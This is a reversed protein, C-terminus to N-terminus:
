HVRVKCGPPTKSPVTLFITLFDGQPLSYAWVKVLVSDHPKGTYDTSYSSLVPTHSAYLVCQACTEEKSRRATKCRVSRYLVTHKHKLQTCNTCKVSHRGPWGFRQMIVVTSNRCSTTMGTACLLKDKDKRLVKLSVKLPIALFQQHEQLLNYSHHCCAVARLFIWTFGTIATLEAFSVLFTDWFRLGRTM